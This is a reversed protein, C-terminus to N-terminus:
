TFTSMWEVQRIIVSDQKFTKEQASEIRIQRM